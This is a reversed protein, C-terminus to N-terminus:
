CATQKISNVSAYREFNVAGEETVRKLTIWRKPAPIKIISWEGLVIEVGSTNM